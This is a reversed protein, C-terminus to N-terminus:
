HPRQHKHRQHFTRVFERTTSLCSPPPYPYKHEVRSSRDYRSLARSVSVVSSQGISEVADNGISVFAKYLRLVVSGNELSSLLPQTSSVIAKMLNFPSLDLTTRRRRADRECCTDSRWQKLVCRCALHPYTSRSADNHKQEIWGVRDEVAIKAGCSM